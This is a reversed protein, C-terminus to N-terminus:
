RITFTIPLKMRVSVPIGNNLAPIWLPMAKVANIVEEALQADPARLVEINSITGNTNVTFAVIVTGNIGFRKSLEPFNLEQQLFARLAKDGGPYGPVRSVRKYDVSDEEYKEPLIPIDFIEPEGMKEPFDDTEGKDLETILPPLTFDPPVQTAPKSPAKPPLV